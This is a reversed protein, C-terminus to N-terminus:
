NLRIRNLHRRLIFERTHYFAEELKTHAISLERAGMADGPKTKGIEHLLTNMDKLHGELTKIYATDVASLGSTQIQM